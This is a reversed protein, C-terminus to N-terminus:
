ISKKKQRKKKWIVKEVPQICSALSPVLVRRDNNCGKTIIQFLFNDASLSMPYIPLLLPVTCGQCRHKNVKKTVIM